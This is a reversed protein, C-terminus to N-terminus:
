VGTINGQELVVTMLKEAKRVWDGAADEYQEEIPEGIEQNQGIHILWEEFM